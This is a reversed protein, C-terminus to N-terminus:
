QKKRSAKVVVFNNKHGPVAGKVILMQNETDIKIIELGKQLAQKNGMQGPMKKGKFVRGPYQCQGTSGLARHSLSNGHTADQMSFNHRKVGGQFGKGKSIGGIDVYRKNEFISLDINDQVKYANDGSDIRFEYIKLGVPVEAKKYHGILAKSVRKTKYEGKKNIKEGVSVQVADYGDVENNKLQIVRNSEVKIVTVPVAKNDKNFVKTMGIKKGVIGIAM